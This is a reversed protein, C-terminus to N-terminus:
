QQEKKDFEAELNKLITQSQEELVNVENEDKLWKREVHLEYTPGYDLFFENDPLDDEDIQTDCLLATLYTWYRATNSLNYGGGGLVMLPLSLSQVHKVCEGMDVTTLNAGGLPDGALIDAGCQLVVVDPRYKEAM